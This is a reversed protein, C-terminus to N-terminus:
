GGLLQVLMRHAQKVRGSKRCLSAFKLWSDMDGEMPVVLQRVSLLSQWVQRLFPIPFARAGVCVVM